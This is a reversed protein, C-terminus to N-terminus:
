ITRCLRSDHDWDQCRQHADLHQGAIHCVYSSSGGGSCAQRELRPLLSHPVFVRKQEEHLLVPQYNADQGWGAIALAFKSTLDVQDKHMLAEQSTSNTGNEFFIMSPFTAAHVSAITTLFLVVRAM